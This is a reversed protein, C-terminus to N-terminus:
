EMVKFNRRLSELTSYGTVIVGRIKVLYITGDHYATGRDGILITKSETQWVHKSAIKYTKKM